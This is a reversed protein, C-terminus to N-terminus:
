QKNFREYLDNAIKKGWNPHLNSEPEFSNFKEVAEQLIPLAKAPGGGFQEPTFLTSQAILFIPRPNNPNLEKAKNLHQTSLPGYTQWRAMANVMLRAQAIMGMITYIESNNPSIENAQDIFSQAKDLYGDKNAVITDMFAALTYCYAVYYKPLWEDKEVTSIREFANATLIFSNFNSSTDLSNLNKEMATFYKESPQAMIIINFLLISFLIKM